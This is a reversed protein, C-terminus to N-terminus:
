VTMNHMNLKQYSEDIRAQVTKFYNSWSATKNQLVQLGLRVKYYFLDKLLQIITETKEIFPSKTTMYYINETTTETVPETSTSTTSSSSSSSSINSTVRESMTTAKATTELGYEIENDEIANRRRRPSHVMYYDKIDRPGHEPVVAPTVENNQFEKPVNGVVFKPEEDNNNNNVKPTGVIVQENQNQYGVNSGGVNRYRNYNNSTYQPHNYVTTSAATAMGAVVKGIAEEESIGGTYEDSYYYGGVKDKRDIDYSRRVPSFPYLFYSALGATVMLGVLGVGVTPMVERSLYNYIQTGIPKEKNKNSVKTGNVLDIKDDAQPKKRRVKNKKRKVNTSPRKSKKTASTTLELTGDKAEPQLVSEPTTTNIRVMETSGMTLGASSTITTTTTTTPKTKKSIIKTTPKLTTPTVRTIVGSPPKPTASATVPKKVTTIKAFNTPKNKPKAKETTPTNSKTVPKVTTLITNKTRPANTTSITTVPTTTSTTTSTTSTTSKRRFLPKINNPSESVGISINRIEVIGPRKTSLNQGSLLIWTSLGGDTTAKNNSTKKTTEELLISDEDIPEAVGPYSFEEEPELQNRKQQQKIRPPTRTDFMLHSSTNTAILQGALQRLTDSIPPTVNSLRAVNPSLQSNITEQPRAYCSVMIAMLIALTINCM